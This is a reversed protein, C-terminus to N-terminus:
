CRNSPRPGQQTSCIWLVYFAARMPAPSCGSVPAAAPLRRLEVEGLSCRLETARRGLLSKAVEDFEKIAAQTVPTDKGESNAVPSVESFQLQSQAWSPVKSGTWYPMGAGLVSSSWTLGGGTHGPTVGCHATSRFHYNLHPCVDDQPVQSVCPSVALLSHLFHCTQRTFQGKTLSRARSLGLPTFPAHVAM